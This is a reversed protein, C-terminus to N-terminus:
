GDPARFVVNTTGHFARCALGHTDAIWTVAAATLFTVHTLDQRYWWALFAQPDPEGNAGTPAIGTRLLLHGGPRLLACLRTLERGPEHLHEFVEVLIIADYGADPGAPRLAEHNPVFFPDYAIGQYGDTTLIDTLVAHPGAGFDLM